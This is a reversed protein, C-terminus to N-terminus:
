WAISVKEFQRDRLGMGLRRCEQLSRSDCQVIVPKNRSLDQELRPLDDYSVRNKIDLFWGLTKGIGDRRRGDVWQGAEAPFQKRADRLSIEDAYYTNNLTATSFPERVKALLRTEMEPSLRHVLVDSIRNGPELILMTPTTFFGLRDPQEIKIAEFKKLGADRLWSELTPLPDRFGVFALRVRPADDLARALSSYFDRSQECALCVTSILVVVYRATDPAWQLPLDITMGPAVYPRAREPAVAFGLVPAYRWATALLLLVILVDVIRWRKTNKPASGPM